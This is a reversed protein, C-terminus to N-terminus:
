ARPQGNCRTNFGPHTPFVSNDPGLLLWRNITFYQDIFGVCGSAILEACGLMAGAKAHKPSMHPEVKWIVNYLWDQLPKDDCLGRLLTEPLHTHSNILAPIVIHNSRDVKDHGSILQKVNEEKGIAVIRNEEILIAGERILKQCQSGSIIYKCRIFSDSM